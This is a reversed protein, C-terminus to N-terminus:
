GAGGREVGSSGCGYAVQSIRRLGDRLCQDSLSGEMECRDDAAAMMLATQGTKAQVLLLDWGM